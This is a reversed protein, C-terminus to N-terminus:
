RSPELFLPILKSRVDDRYLVEVYIIKDDILDLIIQGEAPELGLSRHGVGYREFPKRATYFSACFDDNCSCRVVIELRDIQAALNPEGAAILLEILERSFEPLSEVLLM